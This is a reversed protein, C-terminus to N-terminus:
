FRSMAHQSRPAVGIPQARYLDLGRGVSVSGPAATGAVQQAPLLTGHPTTAAWASALATTGAPRKSEEPWLAMVKKVYPESLEPTSSHYLGVAKTWDVTQGFLQRLFRAAYATNVAPDFAQELTPFADPHHMLNVQMCGVDISKVGRAQMARVAAVAQAKTDFFAGQGEANITWPWPHQVGTAEDRRGSEVRGIAAMLHAPIAEVREVSAIAARCLLGPPSAPLTPSVGARAGCTQALIPVSLLLILLARMPAAHCPFTLWVNVRRPFFRHTCHQLAINHKCVYSRRTVNHMAAVAGM